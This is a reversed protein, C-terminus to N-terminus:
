SPVVKVQRRACCHNNLISHTEGLGQRLWSRDCEALDLHTQSMSKHELSNMQDVQDGSDAPNVALNVAVWLSMHM